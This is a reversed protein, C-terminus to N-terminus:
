GDLGINKKATSLMLKIRNLQNVESAGPDYDVAAINSQPYAKKLAKIVGKGVVHNPLCAFPQICVVNPTGHTILEIMEGALFWGEGYLNGLSLFPKTMEAIRYVSLPAEFRKSENLADTAPKRLAAILRIAAKSVIVSSKKTGLYEAKYQSGFVCYNFFDLLDPVVVEAGERELLEVLHNNALPMYKVLIEGVIGVRPKRITEDIPFSDFANVIGRCVEKYTYQTKSNILSDICIDQWKKHLADASGPIVEYPRVRYLCRMFLDGYVITKAADTVLGASLSFGENKEMGNANLSIVPIHSYGAKDLARRIFSVYNSARCCGGTQTMVIALRDTASLLSRIRIRVAGLNAVEDIKLLTYLKGSAELIESVQDTTVADLGCGFSNLQIMELKDHQCVFEAANYLRSHYVWQDVVRLPRSPEFDIPLSDETFVTLGYSAILEPIGHNIEPDIHYPRGALM